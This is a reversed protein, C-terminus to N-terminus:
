DAQEANFTASLLSAFYPMGKPIGCRLYIQNEALEALKAGAEGFSALTADLSPPNITTSL